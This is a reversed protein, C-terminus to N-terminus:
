ESKIGSAEAEGQQPIPATITKFSEPFKRMLEAGDNEDFICTELGKADKFDVTLIDHAGRFDAQFLRAQRFSVNKLKALEFPPSHIQLRLPVGDETEDGEFWDDENQVVDDWHITVGDFVARTLSTHYFNCNKLNAGAFLGGGFKVDHCIVNTFDVGDLKANNRSQNSVWLGDCFIAGSINEIDNESFSFSSLQIGRFDIASIGLKNLRRIAGGIRLRGEKSDWKKFDDIIEQQRKRDQRKSMTRTGIGIILGFLLVDFLFGAFEVWVGSKFEDLTQPALGGVYLYLTLGGLCLAILFFYVADRGLHWRLWAFIISIRRQLGRYSRTARFKLSVLRSKIKTKM